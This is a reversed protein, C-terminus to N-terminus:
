SAREIETLAREQRCNKVELIVAFILVICAAVVAVPAAFHRYAAAMNPHSGSVWAHLLIWLIGLFLSLAFCLLTLLFTVLLVRLPIWFWRPRSKVAVMVM